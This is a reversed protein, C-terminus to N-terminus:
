LAPRRDPRQLHSHGSNCAPSLKQPDLDCAATGYFAVVLVAWGRNLCCGGSQRCLVLSYM